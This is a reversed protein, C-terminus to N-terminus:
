GYLLRQVLGGVRGARHANFGFLGGSGYFWRLRGVFYMKHARTAGSSQLSGFCSAM